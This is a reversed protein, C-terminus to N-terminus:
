QRWFLAIISEAKQWRPGSLREAYRALLFQQQFHFPFFVLYLENHEPTPM